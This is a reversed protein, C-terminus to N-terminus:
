RSGHRAFCLTARTASRCHSSWWTHLHDMGPGGTNESQTRALVLESDNTWAMLPRGGSIGCLVTGQTVSLTALRGWPGAPQINGRCVVISAASIVQEIESSPALLRRRCHSPTFGM